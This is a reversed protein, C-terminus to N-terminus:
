SFVSVDGAVFFETLGRSRRQWAAPTLGAFQRFDRDMHSQDYYGCLAAADALPMKDIATLARQFRRIRAFLNPPLGVIREFRRRKQRLSLGDEGLRHYQDSAGPHLRTLLLRELLRIRSAAGAAALRERLGAAERGWLDALSIARGAIETQSFRLFPYAGGPRFRAGLVGARRSPRLWLAQDMQGVLFANDQRQEAGNGLLRQFPDGLHVILEMSGDPFVPEVGADPAGELSWFCRVYPALPPPPAFERYRVLGDYRSASRSVSPRM